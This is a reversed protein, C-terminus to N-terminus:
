IRSGTAHTSDAADPEARKQELCRVRWELDAVLPRLARGANSAFDQYLRNLGLKECWEGRIQYEIRTLDRAWEEGSEHFKDYVRVGRTKNHQWVTHGMTSRDDHISQTYRSREHPNWDKAAERYLGYPDDVDATVDVRRLTPRPLGFPGIRRLHADVFRVDDPEAPGCLGLYKPVSGEWLMYADAGVGKIVVKTGDEHVRECYWMPGATGYHKGPRWGDNAGLVVVGSRRDIIGESKRAEQVWKWGPVTDQLPYSLKVTDVGM